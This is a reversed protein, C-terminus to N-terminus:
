GILSSRNVNTEPPQSQNCRVEAVSASRNTLASVDRESARVKM